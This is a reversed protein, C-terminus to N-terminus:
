LPTPSSSLRSHVVRLLQIIPSAFGDLPESMRKCPSADDQLRVQEASAAARLQLKCPEQVDVRRKVRDALDELPLFSGSGSTFELYHQQTLDMPDPAVFDRSLLHAALQKREGRRPRVGIQFELQPSELKLAQALLRGYLGLRRISGVDAPVLDDLRLPRKTSLM